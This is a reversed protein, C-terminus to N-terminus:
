DQNSRVNELKAKISTTMRTKNLSQTKIHRPPLLATLELPPINPPPDDRVLVGLEPVPINPPAAEDVLVVLAEEPINDDTSDNM